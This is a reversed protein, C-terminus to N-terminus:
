EDEESWNCKAYDQNGNVLIHNWYITTALNNINFPLITNFNHKGAELEFNESFLGVGNEGWDWDEFDTYMSPTEAFTTKACITLRMKQTNTGTYKIARAVNQYGSDQMYSKLKVYGKVKILKSTNGSEDTYASLTINSLIAIIAFFITFKSQQSKIEKL